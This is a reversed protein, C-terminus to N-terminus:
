CTVHLVAHVQDSALGAILRCAEATPVADVDVGRRGAEDFVDPTIPLSGYAGTGVILRDGGWPLEEAASLPTHGYEDRYPRSPKKKRKRVQGGDIVVDHEYTQGGVDIAGFGLLRVEM